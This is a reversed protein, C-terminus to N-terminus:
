ARVCENGALLPFCSEGAGTLCYGQMVRHEGQRPSCCGAQRGDPVAGEGARARMLRHTRNERARSGRSGRCSRSAGGAGWVCRPCGPGAGARGAGCGTGGGRGDGWCRGACPPAPGAAALGGSRPAAAPAASRDPRPFPAAEAAAGAGGRGRWPGPLAPLADPWTRSRSLAPVPVPFVGPVFVPFSVRGQRRCVAGM